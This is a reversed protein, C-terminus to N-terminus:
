GLSLVLLILGWYVINNIMQYLNTLYIKQLSDLIATFTQGLLLFVNGILMSIFLWEAANVLRPPVNLVHLLIGERFIIGCVTLPCLIALLILLNVVIDYDSEKTKGQQALFRILSSNLGLNAFINVSGVLAVLSFVGYAETGLLRVFTPITVFVLGTSIVFQAVGSLSSKVVAAKM